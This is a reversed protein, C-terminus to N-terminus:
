FKYQVRATFVNDKVNEKYPALAGSANTNVTENSPMDVYAVFKVNEDWYHVLGVGLTSYAVDAVQLNRGSSAGIDAGAIKTNPDFVDYKLVLQNRNFINQVYCFYYGSVEREYLPTTAAYYRASSKTCPQLGSIYEGRLSFGGLVPLDYYVQMDAGMYNRDFIVNRKGISRVFSTDGIAFSTDNLNTVKGRYFSAGGDIALNVDTLPIAFGLRGIADQKNDNENAIANGMFLGGKFNLFPLPNPMKEPKIELSLGLDRESPFLTQFLRSREPSERSSSSYSIEFGFPRDFVGGKLAFTKLWPEKVWLYADKLTVGSPIADLQIVMQSLTNEYTMKLRGRRVQVLADQNAAFAGGALDGIPYLSNGLTDLAMRGQVQIYGSFKIKALKDVTGKTELYSENLGEIKGKLETLEEKSSKETSDNTQSYSNNTWIIGLLLLFVFGIRKM